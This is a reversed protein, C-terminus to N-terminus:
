VEWRGWIWVVETEEESLLLEGLSCCFQVFWSVIFYPLLGGLSAPGPLGMPPFSDCSCPFFDSVGAGVTRLGVLVGHYSGYMCVYM